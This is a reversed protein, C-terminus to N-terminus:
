KGKLMDVMERLLKNEAELVANKQKMIQLEADATIGTPPAQETVPEVGQTQEAYWGFINQAIITSVNMIESVKWDKRRILRYARDASINMRKAIAPISIKLDYLEEKVFAGVDPMNVPKSFRSRTTWNFNRSMKKKRPM